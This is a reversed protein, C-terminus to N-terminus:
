ASEAAEVPPLAYRLRAGVGGFEDLRDAVARSVEEVLAGQAIASRVDEEAEALHDDAYRPTFYLERVRREELARRTDAPRRAVTAQDDADGTIELVHRLDMQDRLQSAGQQAAAAVQAETAHIDLSELLLARHPAIGEVAHVIQASVERIGGALIWGDDGAIEVSRHAVEALMRDTGVQHAHQAADHGTTGRTGAHFGLRPADGMHSPAETVGHAHITEPPQLTGAAYQFLRAKRADAVLVVVTRTQKLARMYPTMCIGTSWVALTPTPAPLREAERIGDATIFAVWGPSGVAGQFRELENDLLKVCHDFAEREAHSSGELSRRVDKLSNELQVRWASRSAPNESTGDLYISLVRQDSLLHSLSVLEAFTLMSDEDM